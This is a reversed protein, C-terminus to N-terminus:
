TGNRSVGMVGPQGAREVTMRFSGPFVQVSGSGEAAVEAM